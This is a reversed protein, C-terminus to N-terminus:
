LAIRLRSTAPARQFSRNERRVPFSEPTPPRLPREAELVSIAGSLTGLLPKNARREPRCHSAPDTSGTQENLRRGSCSPSASSPATSNRPLPGSTRWRRNCGRVLRVAQNPPQEPIPEPSMDIPFPPEMPTVMHTKPRVQHNLLGAGAQSTVAVPGVDSYSIGVAPGSPKTTRHREVIERAAAHTVPEGQEAQALAEERASEPTSPAALLDLASPAFGEIQFKGAFTEAVQM